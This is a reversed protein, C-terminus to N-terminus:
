QVDTTSTGSVDTAMMTVVQEHVQHSIPSDDSLLGEKDGNRCLERVLEDLYPQQDFARMLDSHRLRADRYVMRDAEAMVHDKLFVELEARFAAHQDSQLFADFLKKRIQDFHGQRKFEDVITEPTSYSSESASMRHNAHEM